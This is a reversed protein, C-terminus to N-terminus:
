KRRKNDMIRKANQVREKAQSQTLGPVSRRLHAAAADIGRRTATNRHDARHSQDERRDSM